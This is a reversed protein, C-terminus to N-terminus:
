PGNSPLPCETSIAAVRCLWPMPLRAAARFSSAFKTACAQRPVYKRRPSVPGAVPRGRWATDGHRSTAQKRFRMTAQSDPPSSASVHRGVTSRCSAGVTENQDVRTSKLARRRAADSRPSDSRCSLRLRTSCGPWCGCRRETAAPMTSIAHGLPPSASRGHRQNFYRSPLRRPPTPRLQVVAACRHSLGRQM